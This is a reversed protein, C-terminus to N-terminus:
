PAYRVDWAWPTLMRDPMGLERGLLGNPLFLNVRFPGKSKTGRRIFPAVPNGPRGMAMVYASEVPRGAGPSAV